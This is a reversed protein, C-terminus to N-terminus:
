RGIKHTHSTHGAMLVEAGKKIGASELRSGAMKALRPNEGIRSLVCGDCMRLQYAKTTKFGALRAVKVMKGNVREVGWQVEIEGAMILGAVEELAEEQQRKEELTVAYSDCPM